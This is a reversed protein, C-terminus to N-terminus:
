INDWIYEFKLRKAIQKVRRKINGVMVNKKFTHMNVNNVSNLSKFETWINESLQLWEVKLHSTKLHSILLWSCLPEM